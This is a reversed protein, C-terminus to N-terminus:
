ASHLSNYLRVVEIFGNSDGLGIQNAYNWSLDKSDDWKPAGKAGDLYKNRFIRSAVPVVQASLNLVDEATTKWYEAKKIGATYAAAFKSGQSTIVANTPKSYIKAIRSM